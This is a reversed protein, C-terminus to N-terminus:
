KHILFYISWNRKGYNSEANQLKTINSITWSIPSTAGYEPTITYSLNDWEIDKLQISFTQVINQWMVVPSFKPTISVIEPKNNGATVNASVNVEEAFCISVLFLAILFSIVWKILINKISKFM